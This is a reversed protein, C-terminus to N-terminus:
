RAFLGRTGPEAPVMASGVSWRKLIAAAGDTRFITEVVEMKWEVRASKVTEDYQWKVEGRYIWYTGKSMPFLEPSLAFGCSPLVVAITFAIRCAKQFMGCSPRLEVDL